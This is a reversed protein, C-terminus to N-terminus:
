QGMEPAWEWGVKGESGATKVVATPWYVVRYGNALKVLEERTAQAGSNNSYEHPFVTTTSTFGARSGRLGTRIPIQFLAKMIDKRCEKM